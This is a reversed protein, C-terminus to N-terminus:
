QGRRYEGHYKEAAANYAETAAEITDFLGLYLRSGNPIKIDAQFKDCLHHKRVGKIGTASGKRVKRNINNQGKTVFRMNSRRCDLGDGNIHDVIQDDGADMIFRHLLVTKQRGAVRVTRRAYRLGGTELLSWNFPDIKAVDDKDVMVFLGRNIPFMIYLDDAESM